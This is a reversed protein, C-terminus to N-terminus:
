KDGTVAGSPGATSSDAWKNPKRQIWGTRGRDLLQNAMKEMINGRAAKRFHHPIGM